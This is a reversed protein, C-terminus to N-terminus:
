FPSGWYQPWQTLQKTSLIIAWRYSSFNFLSKATNVNRFLYSTESYIWKNRFDELINLRWTLTRCEQALDTRAWDFYTDFASGYTNIAPYIIAKQTQCLIDIQRQHAQMMETMQKNHRDRAADHQQNLATIQSTIAMLRKERDTTGGTNTSAEAEM